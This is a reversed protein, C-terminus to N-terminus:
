KKGEVQMKYLINNKMRSEYYTQYGSIVGNSFYKLNENLGQTFRTYFEYEYVVLVTAPTMSVTTEGNLIFQMAHLHAITHLGFLMEIENKSANDPSFLMDIM